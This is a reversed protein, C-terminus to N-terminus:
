AGGTDAQAFVLSHVGMAGVPYVSRKGARSPSSADWQVVGWGPGSAETVRDTDIQRGSNEGVLKGVADTYGVVTGALRPRPCTASSTDVDDRWKAKNWVRGRRVRAGVFINNATVDVLAADLESSRLKQTNMGRNLLAIARAQARRAGLRPWQRPLSVLPAALPRERASGGCPLAGSCGGSRSSPASAPSSAAASASM